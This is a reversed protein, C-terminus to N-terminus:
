GRETHAEGALRPGLRPRDRLSRQFYGASKDGPLRFELFSPTRFPRSLERKVSAPSRDDRWSKFYCPNQARARERRYILRSSDTAGVLSEFADAAWGCKKMAASLARDM